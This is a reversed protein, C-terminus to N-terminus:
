QYWDISHLLGRCYIKQQRFWFLLKQIKMPFPKEPRRKSPRHNQGCLITGILRCRIEGMYLFLTSFPRFLFLLFDCSSGRGTAPWLFLGRWACGFSVLFIIVPIVISIYAHHRGTFETDAGLDVIIWYEQKSIVEGCLLIRWAAINRIFLLCFFDLM